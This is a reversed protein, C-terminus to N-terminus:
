ALISLGSKQCAKTIAKSVKTAGNSSFSIGDNDYKYGKLGSLKKLSIVSSNRDKKMWNFFMIDIEYSIKPSSINYIWPIGYIVILTKPYLKRIKNLVEIAQKKTEYTNKNIANPNNILSGVVIAKLNKNELEPQLDEAMKLIHFSWSGMISFIGDISNNFYKKSLDILGDGFSVVTPFNNSFRNIVLKYEMLRLYHLPHLNYTTNNLNSLFSFMILVKNKMKKHLNKYRYNNIWLELNNFMNM